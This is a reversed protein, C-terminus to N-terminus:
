LQILFRKIPRKYVVARPQYAQSKTSVRQLLASHYEAHRPHKFRIGNLTLTLDVRKFCGSRAIVLAKCTFPAFIEQQM